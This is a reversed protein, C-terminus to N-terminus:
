WLTTSHVFDLLRVGNGSVEDPGYRGIIGKWAVDDCGVRANNDVGHMDWKPVYYTYVLTCVYFCVCVCVRVCVCM